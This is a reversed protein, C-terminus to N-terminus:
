GVSGMLGGGNHRSTIGEYPYNADSVWFPTREDPEWYIVDNPDFDSAKFTKTAAGGVGSSYESVSGNMTYSAIKGTFPRARFLANNTRDIPCRYVKRSQLTGWLQGGEIIEEEEGRKEVLTLWGRSGRPGNWGSFPLFDDHDVTYISTALVIQKMHNLCGTRQALQKAKSLAPLLMGALIAIIAIVVLLEILTFARRGKRLM